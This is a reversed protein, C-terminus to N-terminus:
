PHVTDQSRGQAGLIVCSSVQAFMLLRGKVPDIVSLRAMLAAKRQSAMLPSNSQSMLTSLLCHAEKMSHFALM